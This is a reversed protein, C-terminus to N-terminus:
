QTKDRPQIGFSESYSKQNNCRVFEFSKGNQKDRKIDKSKKTIANELQKLFLNKSEEIKAEQKEKLYMMMEKFESKMEESKNPNVIRKQYSQNKYSDFMTKKSTTGRRSITKQSVSTCFILNKVTGADTSVSLPKAKTHFSNNCEKEGKLVLKRQISEPEDLTKFHRSNGHIMKPTLFLEDNKPTLSRNTDFGEHELVSESGMKKVFEKKFNEPEVISSNLANLELSNMIQDTM